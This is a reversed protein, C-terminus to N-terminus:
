SATPPEIIVNTTVTVRQARLLETLEGTEEDFPNAMILAGAANMVNLPTLAPIPDHISVSRTGGLSTRFTM